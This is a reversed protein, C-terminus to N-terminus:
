DILTNDDEIPPSIILNDTKANWYRFTSGIYLETSNNYKNKINDRWGNWTTIGVIADEIQKITYGGVRDNYSLYEEVFEDNDYDYYTQSEKTSCGDMMDEVVGTYLCRVYDNNVYDPYKMQTLSWQVGNAWSEIMIPEIEDYLSNDINWHSAHALEHIVASYILDHRVSPNYVKIMSEIGIIHQWLNYFVAINGNPSEEYMASIKMQGGWVDNLPPRRLDKINDYYYHFASRFIVAYFEPKGGNIVLNWNGTQKPGDYKAQGYQGSRISFHYREWNFSYNADRKFQGDCEFYGQANTIGTHTTFWRRARVKIGAIPVVGLVDDKMQIRGAPTWYNARNDSELNDTIRLAEEVLAEYYPRMEDGRSFYEEIPPIYLYELISYPVSPLVKTIPVSCYQYTIASDPLSPDHYFLGHEVIEYDLPIDYLIITTDSKLLDLQSENQPMFKVYKHNAYISISPFDPNQIVLNSYADQMNSVTYPNDLKNGLITPGSLISSSNRYNSSCTEDLSEEVIDEISERKCSQLATLGIMLVVTVVIKIINKKM